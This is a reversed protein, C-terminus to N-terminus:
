FPIDDDLEAKSRKDEIRPTPKPAPLSPPSLDEDKAESFIKTLRELDDILPKANEGVQRAISSVELVVAGFWEMGTRRLDVERELKSILKIIRDHRADSLHLDPIINRIRNLLGHIKARHSKDLVVTLMSQRRLMLARVKYHRMTARFDTWWQYWEDDGRPAQGLRTYKEPNGWAEVIALVEDACGLADAYDMTQSLAQAARVHEEFLEAVFAFAEDEDDPMNDIDQKSLM